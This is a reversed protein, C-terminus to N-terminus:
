ILMHGFVGAAGPGRDFDHGCRLCGRDCRGAAKGCLAWLVHCLFFGCAASCVADGMSREFLRGCGASSLNDSGCLVDNGKGYARCLGQGHGGATCLPVARHGAGDHVQMAFLVTPLAEKPMDLLISYEALMLALFAVVANSGVCSDKMIELMRERSRGSFLGDMTDMFGDCHIGGTLWVPLLLLVAATLHEPPVIGWAPLVFVCLYAAGGYFCGLVAGILPFYRVSGGFAEETWIEQRVVSIRTLFQLGVLFSDM